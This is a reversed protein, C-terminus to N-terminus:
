SKKNNKKLKRQNYFKLWRRNSYEHKKCAVFWDAKPCILAIHLAGDTM